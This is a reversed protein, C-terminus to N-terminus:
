WWPASSIFCNQGSIHRQPVATPGGMRSPVMPLTHTFFCLTGQCRTQCRGCNGPSASMAGSPGVVNGGSRRGAVNSNSHVSINLQLKRQRKELEVGENRCPRLWRPSPYLALSQSGSQPYPLPFIAPILEEPARTFASTQCSGGEKREQETGM